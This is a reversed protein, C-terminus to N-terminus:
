FKNLSIFRCSIMGDGDTIVVQWGEGACAWLYSARDGALGSRVRRNLM